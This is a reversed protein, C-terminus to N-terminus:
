AVIYNVAEKASLQVKRGIWEETNMAAVLAPDRCVAYCRHGNELDCIAYAMDGEPNYLVSYAAITAEGDANADITKKGFTEMHQQALSYDPAQLTDAPRQASYVGVVHNTLHMGVGTIAGFENPENRLTKVLSAISHTTYNNGPGGFYPLGGTVTLPKAADTIGLADRTFNLSAPFCSYVDLHKIDAAKVGAMATAQKTAFEIAPSHWLEPREAMYIPERAYSWGHLYIRKDQPVGLEDAKEESAIIVAAAMDVDMFAMMLKTYPSVVPRNGKDTSLLDDASYGRPFWADPNKAAIQSLQAMMEAEQQQNETLTLGHHKRRASDLISFTLYAQFFKHAIESPHPMDDFPLRQKTETKTWGLDREAKKARKKTALAEGGVVLALQTEGRLIQEAAENIFKQPSTGSLGSLKQKCSSIGLKDALQQAANDYAWSISYIVDLEDIASILGENGADKAAAKAMLAWQELPEPSDGNAPHWTHQAVGIICPINRKM